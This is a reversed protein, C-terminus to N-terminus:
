GAADGLVFYVLFGLANHIVHVLTTGLFAKLFSGERWILWCLSLSMGGGFGIFFAGPGAPLHLIGFFAASLLCLPIWRSVKFKRLVWLPFTQGLLTEVPLLLFSFLVGGAGLKVIGETTGGGGLALIVPVFPIKFVFMMLVMLAVFRKSSTQSLRLLGNKIKERWM